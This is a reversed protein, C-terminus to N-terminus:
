TLMIPPTPSDPGADLLLLYVRWDGRIGTLTVFHKWDSVDLGAEELFERRMADAPTEGSEIKGGIANLRGKQWAPKEKRVLAVQDGYPSTFFGAVYETM